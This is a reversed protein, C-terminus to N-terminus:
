GPGLGGHLFRELAHFQGPAHDIGAQFLVGTPDGGREQDPGTSQVLGFPAKLSEVAHGFNWRVHGEVGGLDEVEFSLEVPGDLPVPPYEVVVRGSEGATWSVLGQGSEGQGPQFLADRLGSQFLETTQSRSRQGAM